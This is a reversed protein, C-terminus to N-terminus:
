ILYTLTLVYIEKVTILTEKELQLKGSGDVVKSVGAGAVGDRGVDEANTVPV